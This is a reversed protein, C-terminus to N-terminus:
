ALAEWRELPVAGVVSNGAFVDRLAQLSLAGIGFFGAEGRAAIHPLLFVNPLEWFPSDAPLPEPETVDLAVLIRGRCCAELLADHAVVAGRATNIFTAGERLLRLQRAGILNRTSPLAPTHVSVIDSRAFLEDLPALEAGLARAEKANLFPDYLLIQCGFPRLLPLVHRAVQSASVLGVTAGNLFPGDIPTQVRGRTGRFEAAIQPWRRSVSIMLGLTAEAVNIAMPANGSTVTIGRPILVERALEFSFLSKVTGAMHAVIRLDPAADLIARSFPPSGWGTLVADCGAVRELFESPSLQREERNPWVEFEGTLSQWASPAFMLRLHSPPPLSLVKKM